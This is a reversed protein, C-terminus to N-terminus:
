LRKQLIRVEFLGLYALVTGRVGAEEYAERLAAEQADEGEELGGGPVLWVESSNKSSVLLVQLLFFL